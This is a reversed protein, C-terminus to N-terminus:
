DLCDLKITRPKKHEPIQQELVIKLIGNKITASLVEVYEALLFQRQFDRSSIGRHLYEDSSATEAASKAGLVTLLRDNIDIQIEENSFGAVAIEIYFKGDTTKCVNFPPYNTQNSQETQRILNDLLYDFGIGVRHLSPIDLARLSLTKTM